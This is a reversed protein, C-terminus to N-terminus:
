ERHRGRRGLPLFFPPTRSHSRLSHRLIRHWVSSLAPLLPMDRIRPSGTGDLTVSAGQNVNQDPGANAVPPQNAWVANVICFDRAQLGASAMATLEFMLTQGEPGVIPARFNHESGPFCLGERAIPRLMFRRKPVSGKVFFVARVTEFINSLPKRVKETL